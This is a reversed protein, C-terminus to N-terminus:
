IVNTDVEQKFKRGKRKYVSKAAKQKKKSLPPAMSPANSSLQPPPSFMAPPSINSMPKFKHDTSSQIQPANNFSLSSISRAAYAPPMAQPVPQPLASGFIQPAMAPPMPPVMPSAMSGPQAGFTSFNSNMQINNSNSEMAYEDGDNEDECNAGFLDLPMEGEGEDSDFSHNLEDSLVDSEDSDEGEAEEKRKRSKIYVVSSACEM